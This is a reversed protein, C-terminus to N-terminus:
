KNPKGANTTGPDAIVFHKTNEQLPPNFPLDNVCSLKATMYGNVQFNEAAIHPLLAVSFIFIKM